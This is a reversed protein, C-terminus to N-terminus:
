DIPSEINLWNSEWHQTFKIWLTSNIKSMINLWNSKLHQTLKVRVTSGIKSEITLWNTEWHQTLKVRVTSGIQSEINLWNSEWQQTLKSEINLLNSDIIRWIGVKGPRIKTGGTIWSTLDPWFSEINERLSIDCSASMVIRFQVGRRRLWDILIEAKTYLYVTKKWM